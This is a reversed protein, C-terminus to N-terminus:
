KRRVRHKSHTGKICTRITHRSSCRRLPERRGACAAKKIQPQARGNREGREGRGREEREEREEREGLLQGFHRINRGKRRGGKGRGEKSGNEQLSSRLLLAASSPRNEILRFSYSSSFLFFYIRCKPWSRPSLSLSSLPSLLSSLPSLLSLLSPLSIPPRAAGFLFAAHAPLRSGNRRHLLLCIPLCVVPHPLDSKGACVCCKKRTKESEPIRLHPHVSITCM